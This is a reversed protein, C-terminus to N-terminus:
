LRVWSLSGSSCVDSIAWGVLRCARVCGCFGFSVGWIVSVLMILSVVSFRFMPKLSSRSTWDLSMVSPLTKLWSRALCRLHMIMLSVMLVLALVLSGGVYLPISCTIYERMELALRSLGMSMTAMKLKASGIGVFPPAM